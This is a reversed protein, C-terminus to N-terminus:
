IILIQQVVSIIFTIQASDCEFHINTNTHKKSAHTPLEILSFNFHHNTITKCKSNYNFFAWIHWHGSYQLQNSTPSFVKRLVVNMAPNDHKKVSVTCKPPTVRRLSVGYARVDQASQSKDIANMKPQEIKQTDNSLKTTPQAMLSTYFGADSLDPVRVPFVKAQEQQQRQAEM